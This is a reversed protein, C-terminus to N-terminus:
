QVHPLQPLQHSIAYRTLGAIHHINLKDMVKQRHKEVTKLTISMEYAIQKGAYGQSILQLVQTERKTLHPLSYAAQSGRAFADRKLKAFRNAINPSFAAKGQSTERISTLLHNSAQQKVLYGSAGKRLLKAVLHEDGYTSLVLVRVDPFEQHIKETAEVGDMHPMSVDMLILDPRLKRTMSVAERGDNAEGVVDIDQESKLLMCLGARVVTHDEAIVIRIKKM